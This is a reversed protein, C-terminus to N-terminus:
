QRPVLRLTAGVAEGRLFPQLYPSGAYKSRYADTVAALTDADEVQEARVPHRHGSELVEGEPRARLRRYWGGGPGNMSRVFVDNGVQVVWVPTSGTSGDPRQFGIAIEQVDGLHQLEDAAMRDGERFLPSCGPRGAPEGKRLRQACVVATPRDM